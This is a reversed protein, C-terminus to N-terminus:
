HGNRPCRKRYWTPRCKFHEKRQEPTMKKQWEPRWDLADAIKKGIKSKALKLLLKGIKRVELNQYEESHQVEHINTAEEHKSIVPKHPQSISVAKHSSGTPIAQHQIGKPPSRHAPSADTELLGRNLIPLAVLSAVLNRLIFFLSLKMTLLYPEQIFCSFIVLHLFFFFRVPLSGFDLTPRKWAFSVTGVVRKGWSRISNESM